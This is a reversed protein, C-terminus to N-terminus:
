PDIMRGSGKFRCSMGYETETLSTPPRGHEWLGVHGLIIGTRM